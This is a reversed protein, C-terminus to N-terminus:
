LSHWDLAAQAVDFAARPRGLRLANAKLEALRAPEALLRGLKYSLTAVNNVKVAAGNLEALM